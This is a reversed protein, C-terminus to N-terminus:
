RRWEPAYGRRRQREEVRISVYFLIFVQLLAIASYAAFRTFATPVPFCYYGQDFCRTAIRDLEIRERMILAFAAGFLVTTGVLNGFIAHRKRWFPYAGILSVLFPVLVQFAIWTWSLGAPEYKIV